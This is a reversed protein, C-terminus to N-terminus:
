LTSTINLPAWFGFKEYLYGGCEYGAMMSFSFSLEYASTVLALKDPFSQSMMDLFRVDTISLPTKM